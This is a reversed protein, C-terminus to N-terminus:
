VLSTSSPSIYQGLSISHHYSYALAHIFRITARVEVAVKFQSTSLSISQVRIGQLDVSPFLSRRSPRDHVSACAAERRTRAARATPLLVACQQPPSARQVHSYHDSPAAGPCLVVVCRQCRRATPREVAPWSGTASHRGTTFASPPPACEVMTRGLETVLVALPASLAM